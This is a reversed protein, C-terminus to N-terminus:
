LWNLHTYYGIMRKKLVFKTPSINAAHDVVLNSKSLFSSFAVLFLAWMAVHFPKDFDFLHVMRLLLRPTIPAKCQVATGLYRKVGRLLLKYRYDSEWTLDHALFKHM